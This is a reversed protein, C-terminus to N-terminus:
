RFSAGYFGHSRVRELKPHHNRWKKEQRKNVKDAFQVSVNLM